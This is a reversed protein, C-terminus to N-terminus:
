ELLYGFVRSGVNVYLHAIHSGVDVYVGLFEKEQKFPTTHFVHKLVYLEVWTITKHFLHNAIISRGFMRTQMYQM